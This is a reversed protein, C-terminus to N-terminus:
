QRTRRRRGPRRCWSRACAGDLSRPHVRDALAEDAGQAPLEQVAHQDEPLAMQAGDQGFVLHVVVRGPRVLADGLADGVAFVVAAVEGNGVEVAFPDESFGDQAAQDVFVARAAQYGSSGCTVVRIRNELPVGKVTVM